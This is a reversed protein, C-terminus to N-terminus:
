DETIKEIATSLLIVVAIAGLTTIHRVPKGCAWNFGDVLFLLGWTIKNLKYIFKM